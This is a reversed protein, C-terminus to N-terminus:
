EIYVKINADEILKKVWEKYKEYKKITEVREFYYEKRKNFDEPKARRVKLIKFVGYGRYIPSPPYFDDIKTKLMKYADERRFGWMHILFDLAVFGPRRFEKPNSEKRKEWLSPNKKVQSYFKKAEDLDDFQVLEVSLTNYEDLFKKYAEDETVHPHFSDIVQRRLKELKILHAIENRFVEPSVGLRKKCWTEFVKKNKRWDFNVKEAKLIKDIREDIEQPTAEIGRRFAEYSFILEQWVLDELQQEDRPVPRWSANFTLVVRKAFYYNGIPVPVGFIEGAIKPQNKQELAYVSGALFFFIYSAM